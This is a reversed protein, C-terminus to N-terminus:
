LMWFPPARADAYSVAALVCLEASRVPQPLTAPPGQPLGVIGAELAFANTLCFPCHAGHASHEDTPQSSHSTHSHQAHPDPVTTQAKEGCHVGGLLLAQLQAASVTRPTLDGLAGVRTQFMFSALVTLLALLPRLLSPLTKLM